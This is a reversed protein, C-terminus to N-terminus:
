ATKGAPLLFSNTGDVLALYDVYDLEDLEESTMQTLSITILVQREEANEVGYHDRIDRLKPKRITIVRGDSLTVQKSNTSVGVNDNPTAHSNIAPTNDTAKTM